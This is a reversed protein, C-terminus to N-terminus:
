NKATEEKHSSHNNYADMVAKGIASWWEPKDALWERWLERSFPAPDTTSGKLIDTQLIPSGDSKQWNIVYSEALDLQSYGDVKHNVMQKITPRIITFRYEDIDFVTERAKRMRLLLDDM